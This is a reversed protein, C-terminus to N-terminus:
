IDEILEWRTKLAERREELLFHASVLDDFEPSTADPPSTKHYLPMLHEFEKIYKDREEAFELLKAIAFELQEKNTCAKLVLSTKVLSRALDQLVSEFLELEADMEWQLVHADLQSLKATARITNAMQAVTECHLRLRAVYTSQRLFVGYFFSPPVARPQYVPASM